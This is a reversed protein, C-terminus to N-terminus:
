CCQRPAATPCRGANGVAVITSNGRLAALVATVQAASLPVTGSSRDLALKGLARRDIRPTM